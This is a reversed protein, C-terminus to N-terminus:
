WKIVYARCSVVTAKVYLNCLQKYPERRRVSIYLKKVLVMCNLNFLTLCNQCSWLWTHVILQPKFLKM